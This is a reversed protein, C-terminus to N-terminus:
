PCSLVKLSCVNPICHIRAKFVCSFDVCILPFLIRPGFFRSFRPHPNSIQFNLIATPPLSFFGPNRWVGGCEPNLFNIGPKYSKCRESAAAVRAKLLNWRKRKVKKLSRRRSSHFLLSLHSGQDNPSPLNRPRSPLLLLYLYLGHLIKLPSM